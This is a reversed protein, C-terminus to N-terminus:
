YIKNSEEQYIRCLPHMKERYRGKSVVGSASRFREEFYIISGKSMEHFEAVQPRKLGLREKLRKRNTVENEIETIM